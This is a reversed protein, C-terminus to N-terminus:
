SGGEPSATTGAVPGAQVGARASERRLATDAPDGGVAAERAM